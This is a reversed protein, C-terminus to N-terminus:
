RWEYLTGDDDLLLTGVPWLMGNDDPLPLNLVTENTMVLRGIIALDKKVPDTVEYWAYEISEGQADKVEATASVPSPATAKNKTAMITVGKRHGTWVTSM